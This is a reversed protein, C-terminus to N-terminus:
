NAGPKLTLDIEEDREIHNKEQPLAGNGIKRLPTKQVEEEIQREPLPLGHM